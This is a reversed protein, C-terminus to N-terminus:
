RLVLDLSFNRHAKLFKGEKWSCLTWIELGALFVKCISCCMQPWLFLHQSFLPLKGCRQSQPSLFHSDWVGAQFPSSFLTGQTLRFFFFFVCCLWCYSCSWPIAAQLYGVLSAPSLPLYSETVYTLPTFPETPIWRRSKKRLFLILSAM